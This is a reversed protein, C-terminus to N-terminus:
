LIQGDWENFLKKNGQILKDKDLKKQNINEYHTIINSAVAIYNYNFIRFNESIVRTDKYKKNNKYERTYVRCVYPYSWGDPEYLIEVFYENGMKSIVPFKSVDIQKKMEQEEKHQKYIKIIQLILIFWLVLLCMGIIVISVIIDTLKM